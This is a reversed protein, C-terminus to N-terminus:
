NKTDHEGTAALTAYNQKQAIMSYKGHKLTSIPFIQTDYSFAKLRREELLRILCSTPKLDSIWTGGKSPNEKELKRQLNLFHHYSTIARQTMSLNLYQFM